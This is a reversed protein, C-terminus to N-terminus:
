HTKKRKSTDEARELRNMRQELEFLRIQTNLREEINQLRKELENVRRVVEPNPPASPTPATSSRPQSYEGAPGYSGTGPTLHTSRRFGSAGARGYHLGIGVGYGFGLGCGVGPQAGPFKRLVNRLLDLVFYGGPIGALFSGLPLSSFAGSGGMGLGSGASSTSATVPMWGKGIGAGCGVGFGLGAGSCLCIPGICFFTRSYFAPDLYRQLRAPPQPLRFM